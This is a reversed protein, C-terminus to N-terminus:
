LFIEEEESSFQLRNNKESRHILLNLSKAEPLTKRGKKKKKKVVVHHAVILQPNYQYQLFFSSGSVDEPAGERQENPERMEKQSM